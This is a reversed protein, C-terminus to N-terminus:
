HVDKWYEKYLLWSLVLFVCLFLLVVIGIRVRTQQAPEGMWVLFNVLDRVVADYEAANLRGPSQLRLSKLVYRRAEGQTEEFVAAFSKSQVRAAEVEHATKFERAEMVYQGQLTWLVHPMSVREFVLNNWGTATSPDRYFTRLYTYLWDAGRVRAVVTLDPPAAGFWEKADKRTLGVQMLEGVKDASFLLNDRIQEETLGIDALRNYRMMSASHCNLCHNVFTRAGSQLSAVDRVDSHAPDLRLEVGAATATVAFALAGLMGALQHLPKV